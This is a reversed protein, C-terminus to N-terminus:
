KVVSLQLFKYLALPIFSTRIHCTPPIVNVPYCLLVLLFDERMAVKDIVFAVYVPRPDFSTRQPTVYNHHSHICQFQLVTMCSTVVETIYRWWQSTYSIFWCIRFTLHLTTETNLAANHWSLMHQCTSTIGCLHFHPTLMM